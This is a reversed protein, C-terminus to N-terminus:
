KNDTEVLHGSGIGGSAGALNSVSAMAGAVHCRLGATGTSPTLRYGEDPCHVTAGDM